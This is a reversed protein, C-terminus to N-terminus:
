GPPQEPVVGLQQLMVMIDLLGWFERIKGDEVRVIEIGPYHVDRGTPAMDMFGGTNKGSIWIHSAVMDGESLQHEVTVKSDSFASLFTVFQKKFDDRTLSARGPVHGEWDPSLLEDIAEPRGLDILEHFFRRHLTENVESMPRNIERSWLTRFM